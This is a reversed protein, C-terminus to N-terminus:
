LFTGLDRILRSNEQRLKKLEELWIALQYHEKARAYCKNQELEIGKEKAHQIAEDLTMKM